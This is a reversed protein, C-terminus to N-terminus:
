QLASRLLRQRVKESFEKMRERNVRFQSNKQFRLLQHEEYPTLSKLFKKRHSNRTVSNRSKTQNFSPPLNNWSPIINNSNSFTRRGRRESKLRRELAELRILRQRAESRIIFAQMRQRFAEQLNIKPVSENSKNVNQIGDAALTPSEDKKTPGVYRSSITPNVIPISWFVSRPERVPVKEFVPARLSINSSEASRTSYPIDQGQLDHLRRYSSVKVCDNIFHRSKPHRHSKVYCPSIRVNRCHCAHFCSCVAEPCCPVHHPYCHCKNDLSISELRAAAPCNCDSTKTVEIQSANQKLCPSSSKDCDSFDPMQCQVEKHMAIKNEFRNQGKEDEVKADNEYKTVIIRNAKSRASDEMREADIGGLDVQELRLGEKPSTDLNQRPKLDHKSHVSVPPHSISDNCGERNLTKDVQPEILVSNNDLESSFYPGANLVLEEPQPIIRDLELLTKLETIANKKSKYTEKAAKMQKFEEKLLEVLTRKVATDPEPLKLSFSKETISSSTIVSCQPAQDVATNETTDRLKIRHIKEMIKEELLPIINLESQDASQQTANLMADPLFNESPPRPFDVDEKNQSSTSRDDQSLNEGSIQPPPVKLSDEYVVTSTSFIQENSDSSATTACFNDSDEVKSLTASASSNLSATRGYTRELDRRSDDPSHCIVESEAEGKMESRLSDLRERLAREESETVVLLNSIHSRPCSIAIQTQSEPRILTGCLQPASTVVCNVSVGVGSFGSTNTYQHPLESSHNFLPVSTPRHSLAIPPPLFPPPTPNREPMLVPKAMSPVSHLHNSSLTPLSNSNETLTNDLQSLM